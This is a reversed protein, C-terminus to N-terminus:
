YVAWAGSYESVQTGPVWLQGSSQTAISLEDEHSSVQDAAGSRLVTHFRLGPELGHDTYGYDIIKAVHSGVSLALQLSRVIVDEDYELPILYGLDVRIPVKIVDLFGAVTGKPRYFLPADERLQAFISGAFRHPAMIAGNDQEALYTARNLILSIRWLAISLKERNIGLSVLPSTHWWLWLTDKADRQISCRHVVNLESFAGQTTWTGVLDGFVTVAMAANASRLLEHVRSGKDCEDIRVFGSEMEERKLPNQEADLDFNVTLREEPADTLNVTAFDYWDAARNVIDTAFLSKWHHRPQPAPREEKPPESGSSGIKAM